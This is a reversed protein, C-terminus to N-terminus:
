EGQRGSKKGGRRDMLQTATDAIVHALSTTVGHVAELRAGSKDLIIAGVPRVGGGAGAGGAEGSGGGVGFGFGFSVLPIVTAGERDVPEGLVNKANLLRDLEGVTNKVLKDLDTM